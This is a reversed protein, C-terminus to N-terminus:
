VAAGRRAAAKEQRGTFPVLMPVQQRYTEYTDGFEGVLDHEELQIAVLIYSSTAIAFM